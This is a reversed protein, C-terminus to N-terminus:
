NPALQTTTGAPSIYKLAGGTLYLVGAGNASTAPVSAQFIEIGGAEIVAFRFAPTTNNVFFCYSEGGTPGAGFGGRLTGNDKIQVKTLTSTVSNLILCQSGSQNITVTDSAAITTSTVAQLASTGSNVTIGGATVVLGGATITIGARVTFAGADTWSLNPTNAAANLICGNDAANQGLYYLATGNRTVAYYGLVSASSARNVTMVQVCSITSTAAISTCSVAATNINSRALGNNTSFLLEGDSISTIISRGSFIVAFAAAVTLNSTTSLTTCTVAQLASTGASVTIGANLSISTGSISVNFVSSPSGLAIYTLASAKDKVLLQRPNGANDGLNIVSDQADTFKLGYPRLPDATFNPMTGFIDQLRETVDVKVSRFIDDITNAAESGNPLANNWVNTYAM